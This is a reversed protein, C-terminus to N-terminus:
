PVNLFIYYILLELSINSSSSKPSVLIASAAVLSLVLLLLLVGISPDLRDATISM